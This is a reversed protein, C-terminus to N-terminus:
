FWRPPPSLPALGNDGSRTPSKHILAVLLLWGLCVIIGLLVQAVSSGGVLILGGTLMLRRILDILDYYYCEETYHQYIAGFQKKVRRHSKLDLASDEHLHRRNRWLAIFQILPVGIVYM